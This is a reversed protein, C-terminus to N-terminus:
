CPGSPIKGALLEPCGVRIFLSEGLRFRTDSTPKFETENSVLNALRYEQTETKIIVSGLIDAAEDRDIVFGHDKYGYVFRKAISAQM